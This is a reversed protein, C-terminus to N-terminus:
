KGKEGVCIKELKIKFDERKNIAELTRFIQCNEYDRNFRHPCDEVETEYCKNFYKCNNM